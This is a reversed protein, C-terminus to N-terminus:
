AFEEMGAQGWIIIVLARPGLLPRVERNLYTHPRVGCLTVTRIRCWARHWDQTNLQLLIRPTEVTNLDHCPATRTGTSRPSRSYLHSCTQIGAQLDAFSDSQQMLLVVM